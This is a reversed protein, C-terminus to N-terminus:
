PEMKKRLLDVGGRLRSLEDPGLEPIEHEGTQNLIDYVEDSIVKVPRMTVYNIALSMLLMMAFLNLALHLGASRVHDRIALLSRNQDVYISLMGYFQGGYNVRAEYKLIGEGFVMPQRKWETFLYGADDSIHVFTIEPWQAVFGRLTTEVTERDHSLLGVAVQGALLDVTQQTNQHLEALMWEEDAHRRSQTTFWAIVAVGLAVVLTAKGWLPIARISHLATM